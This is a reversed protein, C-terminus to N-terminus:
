KGLIFNKSYSQDGVKVRAIYCGNSVKMGANDKGDWITSNTTVPLIRLLKGQSSYIGVM